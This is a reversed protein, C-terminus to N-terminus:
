PSSLPLWIGKGVKEDGTVIKAAFSGAEFEWPEVKLLRSSGKFGGGNKM